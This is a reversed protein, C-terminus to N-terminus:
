PLWIHEQASLGWCVTEGAEEQPTSPPAKQVSVTGKWPGLKPSKTGAGQSRYAATRTNLAQKRGGLLGEMRVLRGKEEESDHCRSPERGPASLQTNLQTGDLHERTAGPKHPSLEVKSCTCENSPFGSCGANHCLRGIPLRHTGNVADTGLDGPPPLRSNM